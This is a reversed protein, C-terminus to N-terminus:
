NDAFTLDFDKENDEGGAIEAELKSTANYEKPIYQTMDEVMNKDPNNEEGMGDWVMKGTGRFAKIQVQYRGPAPGKEESIEYEGNVIEAGSSPGISTDFPVFSIQGKELPEGNVTVKGQVSGREISEGGGCGLVSFAVGFVILLETRVATRGFRCVTKVVM